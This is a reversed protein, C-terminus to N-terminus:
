GKFKSGGSPTPEGRGQAQSEVGPCSEPPKKEASQLMSKMNTLQVNAEHLASKCKEHNIQLQKTYDAFNDRLEEEIKKRLDDECVSSLKVRLQKITADKESIIRDAKQLINVHNSRVDQLSQLTNKLDKQLRVYDEQLSVHAAKLREFSDRHSDNVHHKEDYNLVEDIEYSSPNLTM